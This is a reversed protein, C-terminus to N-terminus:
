LCVFRPIWLGGVMVSCPVFAEIEQLGIGDLTNVDREIMYKTPVPRELRLRLKSEM